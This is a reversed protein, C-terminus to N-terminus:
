SVDTKTFIPLMTFSTNTNPTILNNTPCNFSGITKSGSSSQNVILQCHFWSASQSAKKLGSNLGTNSVTSKTTPNKGFLHKSANNVDFGRSITQVKELDNSRQIM